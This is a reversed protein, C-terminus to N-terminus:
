EDGIFVLTPGDSDFRVEYRGGTVPIITPETPMSAATERQGALVDSAFALTCKARTDLDPNESGGLGHDGNAIAYLRADKGHTMLRAYLEVAHRIDVNDDVTGHILVIPVGDPMLHANRISSRIDFEHEDAYTKGLGLAYEVFGYGPYHVVDYRYGGAITQEHTMARYLGCCLVAGAWLGPTFVLSQASIHGGQSGGWLFLRRRDLEPYRALTAWAARLADITQLKSFDYPRDFTAPPIPHHAERGCDRYEVRTVVLNFRDSFNLSEAEYAVSGDNGWGHILLLLGTNETVGGSPLTVYGDIRNDGYQRSVYDQTPYTIREIRDSMPQESM